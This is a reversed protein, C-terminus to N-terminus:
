DNQSKADAVPLGTNRQLGRGRGAFPTRVQNLPQLGGPQIGGVAAGTQNFGNPQVQLRGGLRRGPAGVVAAGQAQREAAEDALSQALDDEPSNGGDQQQAGALAAAAADLRTGPPRPTYPTGVGEAVQNARVAGEKGGITAEEVKLVAALPVSIYNGGDFDCKLWKADQTTTKVRMVKGNKFLVLKDAYAPGGSLGPALVCGLVILAMSIM